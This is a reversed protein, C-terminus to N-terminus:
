SPSASRSGSARALPRRRFAERAARVARDVDEATGEPVRGVLEGTAPSRVDIWDGSGSEVWEGGIFMKLETVTQIAM